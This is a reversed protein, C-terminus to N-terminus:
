RGQKTRPSRVSSHPRVSPPPTRTISTAPRLPSFATRGGARDPRMLIRWLGAAIVLAGCTAFVALAWPQHADTGTIFGHLLASLVMPWSLWHLLRWTSPRVREKLMSSVWVIVLADLALAGVAIDLRRYASTFPIFISLPGTPVYSDVVTTLVHLAVFLVSVISLARHLEALEFRGFANGGVRTTVLSGLVVVLTLLVVSVMGIGRTSHWLYPSTLAIM